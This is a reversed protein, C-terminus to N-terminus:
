LNGELMQSMVDTSTNGFWRNLQVSHQALAVDNGAFLGLLVDRHTATPPLESQYQLAEALDPGFTRVPQGRWTLPQADEVKGSLSVMIGECAAIMTDAAAFLNREWKNKTERLVKDGIRTIEEGALLRYRIFLNPPEGDYGPVPIDTTRTEALEKHKQALQDFLSEPSQDGEALEVASVVPEEHIQDTM